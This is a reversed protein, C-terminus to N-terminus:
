IHKTKKVNVEKAEYEEFYDMIDKCNDFSKFLTLTESQMFKKEVSAHLLELMIDYYGNTNLIAIAKQHQNLQKLTLMELFEEFTGIGGPTVIFADSKEEMIKKRERMTETYIFETCKDYLVGDVEFFSPAVGIIEGNQRSMGRAVAGMLGYTGGGYILSHGRKAMEEGLKEGAEIYSNEIVNSSAGYVCINM